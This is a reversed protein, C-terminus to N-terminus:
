RASGSKTKDQLQAKAVPEGATGKRKQCLPPLPPSILVPLVLFPIFSFHFSLSCVPESLSSRCLCPSRRFRYSPSSARWPALESVASYPIADRISNGPGSVSRQRKEDQRTVTGECITRWSNGEKESVTPPLPPSIFFELVLFTIFSSHFSLSCVPESLTSRCLCPSRRFRNSTSSMRWTAFEYVASYPIADRIFKEPGSVSRQRKEDQRTVTGECITRWSDGEKKSM